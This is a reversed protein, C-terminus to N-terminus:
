YLINHILTDPSYGKRARGRGKIFDFAADVDSQRIETNPAFPPMARCLSDTLTDPIVCLTRLLPRLSDRETGNLREAAINYAQFFLRIQRIRATDRTVWSPVLYAALRPEVGLTSIHSRAGLLTMEGSYPQPLLAADMTGNILMDTRIRVDNIQPRFIEDRAIGASDTIRDSWYDTISHRAVAVMRERLHKLARVRGRRPTILELAGEASAIACLGFTDAQQMMIARILDSYALEVHRCLLATDTDLQAQLTLLRVDVGLTDFIGRREAYYFPLCDAVPMLAVHLAASDLRAEEEATLETNGNHCATLFFLLISFNFSQFISFNFAHLISLEKLTTKCQKMEMNLLPNLCQFM